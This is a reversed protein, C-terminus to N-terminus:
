SHFLKTLHAHFREIDFPKQMLFCDSIGRVEDLTFNGSCFIFPTMRNPGVGDRIERLLVSGIMGPMINDSIILDYTDAMAFKMASLGDQALTLNVSILFDELEIALLELMQSNDEAVLIKFVKSLNGDKASEHSANM